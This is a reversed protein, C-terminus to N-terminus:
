MEIIHQSFFYSSMGHELPKGNFFWEIKLKPDNKPEVTGELHLPQAENLHFEPNLPTTWVPKSFAADPVSSQRQLKGAVADEVEQVKDLGARGQPHQTDLYIDKDGVCFM